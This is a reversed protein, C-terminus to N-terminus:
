EDILAKSLEDASEVKNFENKNLIEEFNTAENDEDDFYDDEVSFASAGSSTKTLIIDSVVWNSHCQHKGYKLLDLSNYVWIFGSHFTVQEDSEGFGIMSMFKEGDLVEASAKSKLERVYMSEPFNPNFKSNSHKIYFMLKMDTLIKPEASDEFEYSVNKCMPLIDNSEGSMVFDYYLNGKIKGNFLNKVIEDQLSGAEVKKKGAKTAYIVNFLSLYKNEDQTQLLFNGATDQDRIWLPPESIAKFYKIDLLKALDSHKNPAIQKFLISILDKDSEAKSFDAKSMHALLLYETCMYVINDIEVMIKMENDREMIRTSILNKCKGEGNPYGALSPRKLRYTEKCKAKSTLELRYRNTFRGNDDKIFLRPSMISIGPQVGKIEKIDFLKRKSTVSQISSPKFTENQLYLGNDGKLLSLMTKPVDIKSPIIKVFSM